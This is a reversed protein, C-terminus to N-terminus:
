VIGYETWVYVYKSLELSQGCTCVSICLFVSQGCTCLSMRFWVRDM